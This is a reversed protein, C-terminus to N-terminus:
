EVVLKGNYVKQGDNTLIGVTYFGPPLGRLPVRENNQNAPIIHRLVPQGVMNYVQMTWQPHQGETVNVTIADKAPNPFLLVEPEGDKKVRILVVQSYAFKGDLDVQRLRYYNLGKKFQLDDLGYQRPIDSNGTATVQGISVFNLGDASRQVDFHSANIEQATTWRLQVANGVLRGTFSSLMVPIVVGGGPILRKELIEVYGTDSKGQWTARFNDYGVVQGIVYNPTLASMRANVDDVVYAIGPMNSIDRVTDSYYANIRVWASDEQFVKINRKNVIRISDLTAGAPLTVDIFATDYTSRGQDDFGIAVFYLRGIAELPITYSLSYNQTASNYYGAGLTANGAAVLIKRINTSGAMDVTITQGAAFSTGTAPSTITITESTAASPSRLGANYNLVSPNYGNATFAADTTAAKLLQRVLPFVEPKDLINNHSINGFFSLASAPLGGKQSTVSVALDNDDEFIKDKLCDHVSMSTNCTTGAYATYKLTALIRKAVEAARGLAPIYSAVTLTVNLLLEYVQLDTYKSTIAHTPVKNKNLNAPGNLLVRIGDKSVRLDELAGNDTNNGLLLNVVASLAPSTRVLDAVQSGSHPTNLTILKRITKDYDGSQLFIRSLIGGMSHAVIDVKGASMNNDACALFLRAAEDKAVYKNNIFYVDNPYSPTSVMFSRYGGSDVMNQKMPNFADGSSWIGHLCLVPPPVVDLKIEIAVKAPNFTTDLLQLTIERRGPVNFPPAIQEPHTYQVVLSDVSRHVIAFSGFDAATNGQKIVPKLNAPSKGQWKFLTASSGDAAVRITDSNPIEPDFGAISTRKGENNTIYNGGPVPNLNYMMLDGRQVKCLGTGTALWINGSRDVHTGRIYNTSLGEATTYLCYSSDKTYSATGSVTDKNNNFILLGRDTGIYIIGKRDGSIANPQVAGGSALVNPAGIYHWGSTDKVALRNGGLALWVRGKVDTYLAPAAATTNTLGFPLGTNNQDYKGMYAGTLRNYRLLGPTFLTDGTSARYGSISVLIENGDATIASASRRKGISLSETGATGTGVGLAFPAALGDENRFFNNQGPAMTAVGGTKYWYRANFNFAAPYSLSDAYNSASWIRGTLTDPYVAFTNRTPPGAITLDINIVRQGRRNVRDGPGNLINITEIGGYRNNDVELGIPSIYGSHAVWLQNNYVAMQRMWTRRWPILGNLGYSYNKLINNEFRYIGRTQTGAYVFGNDDSTVCTFSTDRKYVQVDLKQCVIPKPTITFNVDSIDKFLNATTSEVKIRALTSSINPLVVQQINDNPTSAELVTPFTLGGDTSLSIKVNSSLATTNGDWTVDLPGGGEVSIAADPNTVSFSIINFKPSINYFINELAEVKIRATSTVINPLIVQASGDNATSALLVTPFTLGDDTSLSIKVNASLNATGDGWFVTCTEGANENSGGSPLILNFRSYSDDVNITVDDAAANGGGPHNDRVTLRFHLARTVRTLQEWKRLAANAPDLVSELSPFSRSPNLSPKKSRFLPGATAFSNNPPYTTAESGGDIQEWTYKLIDGPNNDHGTGTLVFPTNPPITRDPGANATPAINGNSSTSYCTGATSKIFDTIEAISGTHFYSDNQPEVDLLDALGAYAMVTSGSGPEYRPNTAGTEDIFTFTHNAGFQHGIEHGLINTVFTVSNANSFFASWAKGKLGAACVCGLSGTNGAGPASPWVTIAHGINYDNIATGVVNDCVTQCQNNWTLSSVPDSFNITSYDSFPDTAPNLFILNDTSNVLILRVGLDIEYIDNLIILFENLKERVKFKKGADDLGPFSAVCLQSFEGSAVLALKYVRLIGDDATGVRTTNAAGTLASVISSTQRNVLSSMGSRSTIAYLSNDRDVLEIYEKESNITSVGMLGSTSICFRINSSPNDIGQGVYSHINPSKIALSDEMVPADVIKYRHLNGDAGPLSIIFTSQQVQVNRELPAQRLHQFLGAENLKFLQYASPKSRGAFLDTTVTSKDVAQWYTTPQAWATTLLLCCLFTFLLRM